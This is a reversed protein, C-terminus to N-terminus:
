PTEDPAKIVIRSIKRLGAGPKGSADVFRAYDAPGFEPAGSFKDTAALAYLVKSVQFRKRSWEDATKTKTLGIRAALESYRMTTNTDRLHRLVPITLLRYSLLTTGTLKTDIPNLMEVEDEEAVFRNTATKHSMM